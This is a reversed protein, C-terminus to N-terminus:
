HIGPTFRMFQQGPAGRPSDIWTGGESRLPESIVEQRRCMPCDYWRQVSQANKESRARLMISDCRKCRVARNEVQNASPSQAAGRRSPNYLFDKLEGVTM